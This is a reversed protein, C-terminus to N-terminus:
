NLYFKCHLQISAPWCHLWWTQLPAPCTIQSWSFFNQPSASWNHSASRLTDPFAPVSSWVQFLHGSLQELNGLLLVVADPFSNLPSKDDTTNPPLEPIVMLPLESVLQHCIPMPFFLFSLTLPLLPIVSLSRYSQRSIIPPPWTVDLMVENTKLLQSSTPTM